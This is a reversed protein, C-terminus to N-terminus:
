SSSMTTSTTSSIAGPSSAGGPVGPVPSSTQGVHSLLPSTSPSVHAFQSPVPRITLPIPPAYPRWGPAGELNLTRSAGTRALNRARGPLDVYLLNAEVGMVRNAPSDSFEEDSLATGPFAAAGYRGV